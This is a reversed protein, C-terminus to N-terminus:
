IVGIFIDSMAACFAYALWLGCTMDSLCVSVFFSSKLIVININKRKTITTIAVLSTQVFPYFSSQGRSKATNQTSAISHLSSLSIEM